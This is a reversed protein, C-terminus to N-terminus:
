GRRARSQKRAPSRERERRLSRRPQPVGRHLAFALIEKPSATATGLKEVVVGAALNAITVAREMSAGAALALTLVSMVTDGAGSVDYVQRALAPIWLPKNRRSFLSMGHEGRTVLVHKAHTRDMLIKAARALDADNRIILGAATQTEGINPAIWDVGEFADINQPKPDAAIVAPTKFARVVQVLRRAILGKGYDSIVVGDVKGDLQALSRAISRQVAGDVSATSERDARVVQQNHAVIRMKQTTPRTAARAVGKTDVGLRAFLDLVRDGAEDRGIVGFVSVHAGLAALNNAVNGAGGLTYTHDSVEVVPVPAEPSIRRVSGWYWEDLMLDGIVAIRRGRMAQLLSKVWDFPSSM